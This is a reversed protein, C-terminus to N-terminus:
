VLQQGPVNLNALIKKLLHVNQGGLCVYTVNSLFKQRCNIKLGNKAMYEGIFLWFYAFLAMNM